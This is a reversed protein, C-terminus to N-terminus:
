CYAKESDGSACGGSQHLSGYPKAVAKLQSHYFDDVESGSLYQIVAVGNVFAVLLNNPIIWLWVGFVCDESLCKGVMFM